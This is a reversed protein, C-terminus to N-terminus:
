QAALDPEDARTLKAVGFDVIKVAETDGVMINEPKLDRHVIGAAHAQALGEAIQQAIHAIRRPPLRGAAMLDRLTQGQVWEMVIFAVGSEHGVDHITLINPHNLASAAEAEQTFRRLRDRDNALDSPLVKIAIHRNLRTDLARYVEGM